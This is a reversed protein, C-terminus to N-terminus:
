LLIPKFMGHKRITEFDALVDEPSEQLRQMLKPISEAQSLVGGFRAISDESNMLESLLSSLVINGERKQEPLTQQIKALVVQISSQISDYLREVFIDSFLSV